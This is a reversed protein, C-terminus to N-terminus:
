AQGLGVLFLLELRKQGDPLIDALPLGPPREFQIGSFTGLHLSARRAGFVNVRAYASQGM